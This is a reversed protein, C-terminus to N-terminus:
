AAVENETTEADPLISIEYAHVILEAGPSGDRRSFPHAEPRGCVAVKMGKSLMPAYKEALEKWVKVRIWHVFEKGSATPLAVDIQIDLFPPKGEVQILKYQSICGILKLELKM